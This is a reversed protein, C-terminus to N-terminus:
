GASCATDRRLDALKARAREHHEPRLHRRILNLSTVLVALDDTFGLGLLVDPVVDFPMIFYALAALLTGRVKLPTKPDIACYFAAVAQEAFPVSALNRKLKPWFDRRVAAEDFSM